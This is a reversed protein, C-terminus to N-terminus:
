AKDTNESKSEFPNNQMREQMKAEPLVAIGVTTRITYQGAHIVIHASNRRRDIKTIMAEQNKLPGETIIVKDGKKYAMTMPISRQGENTWTEIWIRDQKSLPAYSDGVKVIRTPGNVLRISRALNWPERTVAILYGPLLLKEDDHWEGHLKYQTAYRPTFCEELLPVEPEQQCKLDKTLKIMLDRSAEERGNTVM